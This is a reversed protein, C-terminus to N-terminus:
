YRIMGVTYEQGCPLPCPLMSGYLDSAKCELEFIKKAFPDDPLQQPDSVLPLRATKKMKQLLDRGNQNFGLVRIYPPTQQEWRAPIGLYAATVIRRLRAATYRRTKVALIVKELSEETQVATYLRNHLGESVGPLAAFQSLDLRRLFSLILRDALTTDTLCHKCELANTLLDVSEAPMFPRVTELGGDLLNARIWGASAFRDEPTDADHVAGQRLVPYPVIASQLISLAKGYGIALTNNPESLVAATQQDTLATVARQQAEPYSVGEKLASRLLDPFRPDQVANIVANLPQIEGAECGFSIRDICGMNELISVGGFAFREAAASAWPLPLEIILDAGGALAMKVRDAKPLLAPTGRQTFNGGMVAVIHTAGAERTATIHHAHGNHFPNYEAIIGAVTM